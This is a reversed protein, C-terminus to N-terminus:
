SIEQNEDKEESEIIEIQNLYTEIIDVEDQINTILDKHISFNHKGEMYIKIYTESDYIEENIFLKPLNKPYHGLHDIIEQHDRFILLCNMDADVNGVFHKRLMNYIKM